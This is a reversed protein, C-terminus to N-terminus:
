FDIGFVHQKKVDTKEAKPRSKAAERAEESLADDTAREKMSIERSTVKPEETGGDTPITALQAAEPQSARTRELQAKLTANEKRLASESKRVADGDMQNQEELQQIETQLEQNETQLEQNETQLEQNETQLQQWLRIDNNTLNRGQRKGLYERGQKRWDM